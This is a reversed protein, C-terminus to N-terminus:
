CVDKLQLNKRFLNGTHELRKTSRKRTIGHRTTATWDQMSHIKILFLLRWTFTVKLGNKDLLWIVHVKITDQLKRLCKFHSVSRSIINIESKLLYYCDSLVTQGCCNLMQLTTQFKQWPMISLNLRKLWCFLLFM